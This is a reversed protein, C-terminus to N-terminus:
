SARSYSFSKPLGARYLTGHLEEEPMEEKLIKRINFLAEIDIGTDFGMTEVMYVLDEFVANGTAGPAFPCGGLGGLSADFVRAGSDMAAAANAIATGRTDHLHVIYPVDGMLRTMKECLSGVQRPGGYGVTDAVGVTDVGLEMCREALKVVHDQEVKGAISCGFAMSIGVNIIPRKESANRKDVTNKIEKLSQELGRRTNATNHEETASIVVTIEEVDTELADSAGRENLVLAIGTADPKESVTQVIDRVDAFQPYRSPPLFSGVEFHRVGADYELEIWRQKAKTSPYSKAMQIGDRLGVERVIIRGSPYIDQLSKM